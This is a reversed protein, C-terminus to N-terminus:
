MNLNLDRDLSFNNYIPLLGLNKKKFKISWITNYMFIINVIFLINGAKCVDLDVDTTIANSFKTNLLQDITFKQRHQLTKLRSQKNLQLIRCQVFNQVLLLLSLVLLLKMEFTEALQSKRFDGVFDYCHSLLTKDESFRFYRKRRM